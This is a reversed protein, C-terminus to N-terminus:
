KRERCIIKVPTGRLEFTERLRNELYRTYSFHMHKPNNVFLVFTPPKIAVQNAYYIKIRGKNFYPAPNVIQADQIVDNLSSTGIRLNYSSYAAEIEAFVTSIRTREKASVYVISAYDLFKFEKRVKKTFEDMTSTDKTILDWKNVVIVIPKNSEIAYGAVHKDQEIIGNDADIVLLVIDSRDIASLARLAAYKDVSEYIRGRKLLGATDIVEYNQGSRVFPTDIADRTTGSIDSVIVREQNLMANVLSSKGVNPRGVVCFRIVDDDPTKDKADPIKKVVEDLLDGVGIGHTAAMTVPQGFGLAYFENVFLQLEENDSKNVVLVVPKQSQFLMKAIMRDDKTLGLKADTLFIIVDAEEIAIEVQARIQDQFPTNAIEIGGTDILRFSRTLWTARGYLRDRTVGAQDDVIAQREGIIRNFLTSKGVNPAGVIAVIPLSM